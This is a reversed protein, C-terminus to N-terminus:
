KLAACISFASAKREPWTHSNAAWVATVVLGVLVIPISIMARVRVSLNTTLWVAVLAVLVVGAIALAPWYREYFGREEQKKEALLALPLSGTKALTVLNEEQSDFRLAVLDHKKRLENILESQELASIVEDIRRKQNGDDITAMSLSTDLLLVATFPM